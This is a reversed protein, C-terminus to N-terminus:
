AALTYKQWPIRSIDVNALFKVIDPRGQFTPVGRGDQTMLVIPILGFAKTGLARAAFQEQRSTLVHAKVVVIGFIVGQERIKAGEFQM